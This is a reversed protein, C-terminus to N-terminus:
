TSHRYLYISNLNFLRNLTLAALFHSRCFCLSSLSFFFTSSCLTLIFYLADLFSKPPLAPQRTTGGSSSPRAVSCFIVRRSQFRSSFELGEVVVLLEKRKWRFRRPFWESFHGRDMAPHLTRCRGRSDTREVVPLFRRKRLVAPSWRLTDGSPAAHIM